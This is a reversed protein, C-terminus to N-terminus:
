WDRPGPGNNQPVSRASLKNMKIGPYYFERLGRRVATWIITYMVWLVLATLGLWVLFGILLAIFGASALFTLVGLPDIDM